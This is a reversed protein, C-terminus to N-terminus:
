TTPSSTGKIYSSIKSAEMPRAFLFGQGYDCGLGCLKEFQETTEIGEALAAMGLGHVLTIIAAVIKEGGASEIRATFRQDIKLADVAFKQLYALSSYGTGFDDIHVKVGLNQLRLLVDIAREPADIVTSETIELNLRDADLKTAGLVDEIFEVLEPKSFQRSVLNVSV